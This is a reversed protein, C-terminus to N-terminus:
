PLGRFCVRRQFRRLFRASGMIPVAQALDQGLWLHLLGPSVAFLLICTPASMLTLFRTGFRLLDRPVSGGAGSKRAAAPLLTEAARWNLDSIAFPFKQSVSLAVTSGPGCLFAVLAVRADVITQQLLSTLTMVIGFKMEAKFSAIRLPGFRIAPCDPQRCMVACASVAVIASSLAYWGAVSRIHGGLLLSVVAGGSRLAASSASIANIIGFRRLGALIAFSFGLVRETALSLCLLLVAVVADSRMPESLHMAPLLLYASLGACATAGIGFILYATAMMAVFDKGNVASAVERTLTTSLGTELCTALAALAIFSVLVGYADLGLRALMIPVTIVGLVGSALVGSYNFLCNAILHAREAVSIDHSQLRQTSVTELEPTSM